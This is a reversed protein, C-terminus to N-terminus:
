RAFDEDRTMAFDEDRSIEILHRDAVPDTEDRIARSRM